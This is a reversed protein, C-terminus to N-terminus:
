IPRRKRYLCSPAVANVVPRGFSVFPALDFAATLHAEIVQKRAALRVIELLRDAVEPRDIKV